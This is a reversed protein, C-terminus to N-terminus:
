TWPASAVGDARRRRAEGRPDGHGQVGATGSKPDYAEITLRNTEVQDPFHFTMFALGPRLATTVHVPAEIEGRRSSSGCGSARAVGLAEADEPSLDLTEGRHLPSTFGGPRCARHQLLRAASRDDAPDPVRRDARGGAPRRDRRQVAGQPGAAGSRRVALAARAPVASRRPVGRQVAVPDRRAGRDAGVVHLPADALAVAARGLSRAADPRGLRVGLRDALQAIIWIDDKAEGPPDLAKRVRQVRRESNTVTGESEFAANSAPFVVDAIEATKTMVLDQVILRTSARSCTCPTTAHRGRLDGPERRHLLVATLEGREMAEFMHTLHWGYRPMIPVGWAAEFRARAEDDQEIDQFGALKNPIAGM